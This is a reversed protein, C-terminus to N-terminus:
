SERRPNGLDSVDMDQIDGLLAVDFRMYISDPHPCIQREAKTDTQREAQRGTRSM